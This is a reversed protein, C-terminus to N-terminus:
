WNAPNRWWKGVRRKDEEFGIVIHGVDIPKNPRYSALMFADVLDDGRGRKPNYKKAQEVLQKAWLIRMPIIYHTERFHRGTQGIMIRKINDIREEGDVIYTDTLSADIKTLTKHTYEQIETKYDPVNPGARSDIKTIKPNHLNLLRGIEPAIDEISKDKWWGIYIVKIKTEGRWEVLVYTTNHFGCDIGAELVSNPDGAANSGGELTGEIDFCCNNITSAPFTSREEKPTVIGLCEADYRTQSWASKWMDHPNWDCIDSPYRNMHFKYGKIYNKPDSCLDIFWNPKQGKGKQETYPTGLLIIKGVLDKKSCGLAKLFVEEGIDQSEDLIMVDARSGEVSHITAMRPILKSFNDKFQIGKQPIENLNAPVTVLRQKLEPRWRFDEAINSYLADQSSVVIVTLPKGIKTSYEDAFFLGGIGALMSKGFGRGCPIVQLKIKMDAIDKLLELQEPLILDKLNPRCKEFYEVIPSKRGVVFTTM